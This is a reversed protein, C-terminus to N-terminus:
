GGSLPLLLDPNIGQGSGPLLPVNPLLTLIPLPIGTFYSLVYTLAVNLFNGLLPQLIDSFLNNLAERNGQETLQQILNLVDEIKEDVTELSVEPTLLWIEINIPQSVLFAGVMDINTSQFEQSIPFCIMTDLRYDPNELLPITRGKGTTASVDLNLYFDVEIEDTIDPAVMLIGTANRFPETLNEQSPDAVGNFVRSLM